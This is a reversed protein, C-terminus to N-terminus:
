NRQITKRLRGQEGSWKKEVGGERGGSTTKNKQLTKQKNKKGLKGRTSEAQVKKPNSCSLRPGATWKEPKRSQLKGRENAQFNKNVGKQQKGL